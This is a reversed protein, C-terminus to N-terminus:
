RAAFRHLEVMVIFPVRKAPKPPAAAALPMLVLGCGAAASPPVKRPEPPVPVVPAVPPAPTPQTDPCAPGPVFPFEPFKVEEIVSVAV